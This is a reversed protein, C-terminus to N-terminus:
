DRQRGPVLRSIMTKDVSKNPGPLALCFVPQDRNQAVERSITSASQNLIKAAERQSKGSSLLVQIQCREGHALQHCDNSM